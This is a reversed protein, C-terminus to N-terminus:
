DLPYRHRQQQSSLLLVPCSCLNVSQYGLSSIPCCCAVRSVVSHVHRSWCHRSEAGLAIGQSFLLSFVRYFLFRSLVNMTTTPVSRFFFPICCLFFRVNVFEERGLDHRTVNEDKKLKKEVVSQTAIGAHDTGPVYLTAHGLM